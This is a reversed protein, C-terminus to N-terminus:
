LGPRERLLEAIFSKIYTMEKRFKNQMQL